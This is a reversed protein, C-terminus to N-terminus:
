RNRDRIKEGITALAQGGLKRALAWSIKLVDRGSSFCATTGIMAAYSLVLGIALLLWPSIGSVAGWLGWLVLGSALSGTFQPAVSMALDHMRVPGKRGVYWWALPVRIIEGLGYGFAVGRAGYPLGLVFGAICLFTHVAGWRAYEGSRGQSIFLWGVPTLLVQLFAALGLPAFIDATEMWKEGLLLPIIEHSFMFAWVIGPWVALTVQAPVKLFVKRYKEPEFQLRSLLPVMVSGLPWVMRQLPFLLLKYARDYMGLERDGWARGILINDMNRALFNSLNFGMVGAGFHLMDKIGPVFKPFSPRWGTAVWSGATAVAAGALLGFYLAWYNRFLLACVLATVLGSVVGSINVLAIKNFAMRRQLIASQQHALSTVFILLGCAKCIPVVRPDHYYLGVLPSMLAVLLGFVIGCTVNIWFFANIEREEIKDRQVTANGLGFDQFLYVFAVLPSVMALLGFDEPSLLRALVIVNLFQCVVNVAQALATGLVGSVVHRSVDKHPPEFSPAVACSFAAGADGYSVSEGRVNAKRSFRQTLSQFFWLLNKLM